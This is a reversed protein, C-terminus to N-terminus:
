SNAPLRKLEYGIQCRRPTRGVDKVGASVMVYFNAPILLSLTLILSARSSTM